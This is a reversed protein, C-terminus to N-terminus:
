NFGNDYQDDSSASFGAPEKGTKFLYIVAAGFILISLIVGLPNTISEWALNSKPKAVQVFNKNLYNAYRVTTNAVSNGQFASIHKTLVSPITLQFQVMDTMFDEEPLNMKNDELTSFYFRKKALDYVLYVIPRKFYEREVKTLNYPVPLYDSEAEQNLMLADDPSIPDKSFRVMTALSQLDNRREEADVENFDWTDPIKDIILLRMYLPHKGHTLENMHNSVKETQQNSLLHQPDYVNDSYSPYVINSAKVSFPIILFGFLIAMYISILKSM